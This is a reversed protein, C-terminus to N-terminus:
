RHRTETDLTTIAEYTKARLDRPDVCIQKKIKGKKDALIRAIQTFIKVLVASFEDM